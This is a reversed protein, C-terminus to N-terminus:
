SLYLVFEIIQITVMLLKHKPKHLSVRIIILSYLWRDRLIIHLSSRNIHM